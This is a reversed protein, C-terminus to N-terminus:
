GAADPTDAPADHGGQRAEAKPAAPKLSRRAHPKPASKSEPTEVLGSDAEEPVDIVDDGAGSQLAPKRQLFAPLEQTVDPHDGSGRPQQDRDQRNGPRNDQRNANGDPRNDQFQQQRERQQAEQAERREDQECQAEALIRTYHESHQQFNEMAVRDGSLQADRALQNYRDIIQQPTGRM